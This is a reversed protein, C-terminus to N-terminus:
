AVEKHPHTLQYRSLLLQATTHWSFNEARLRASHSRKDRPHKGLEVIADVWTAASRVCSVGSNSDIIEKIAGTDRCIVPTGSALAELAALGFTEIPGVALLFDSHAYLEAIQTRDAIHGIFEIPLEEDSARNQLRKFMPGDGAVKIWFPLNRNKIEAAIELLFGPDKEKSLRTVALLNIQNSSARTPSPKARFRILDVGLPITSFPVDIRRFEEAAYSTTAIVYDINKSTFRNWFDALPRSIARIRTFALIVKDVREHAFLATVIGQKRFWKALMLLSLRDSIEVVDPESEIVIRKVARLNLIIRYGGSFPIPYSPVEYKIGFSTRYRRYRVGPVVLVYDQGLALYSEGLAHATTKLGGSRPSYMNALHIIRSM